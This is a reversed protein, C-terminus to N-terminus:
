AGLAFRDVDVLGLDTIKLHPIVPLPLFALQLFAEELPGGMEKVAVRQPISGIQYYGDERTNVAIEPFGVSGDIISVRLSPIDRGLEDTIFGEVEGPSSMSNPRLVLYYVGISATIIVATFALVLWKRNIGSSSM